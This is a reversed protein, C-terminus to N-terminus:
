VSVLVSPPAWMRPEGMDSVTKRHPGVRCDIGCVADMYAAYAPGPPQSLRTYTTPGLSMPASAPCSISDRSASLTPPRRRPRAWTGSEERKSQCEAGTGQLGITLDCCCHMKVSPSNHQMCKMIGAVKCPQQLQGLASQCVCEAACARSSCAASRPSAACSSAKMGTSMWPAAEPM